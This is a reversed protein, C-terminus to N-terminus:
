RLSILQAYQRQSREKSAPYTADPTPGGSTDCYPHDGGIVPMGAPDALRQFIPSATAEGRGAIM